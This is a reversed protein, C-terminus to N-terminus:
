IPLDDMLRTTGIVAQAILAHRHSARVDVSRRPAFYDRRDLRSKRTKKAEAILAVDGAPLSGMTPMMAM